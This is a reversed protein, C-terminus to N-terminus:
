FLRYTGVVFYEEPVKWEPKKEVTGVTWSDPKHFHATLVTHFYFMVIGDNLHRDEKTIHKVERDLLYLMNDEILFRYTQRNLAAPALSSAYFAKEWNPDMADEAFDCNQGFVSQSVLEDMAIKPAIHGKIKEMRVDSRSKIDIRNSDKEPNGHGFSICTTVTLPSNINLATKVAKAENITLFCTNLKLETLKLELQAALYGAHIYGEESDEGLLLIYNPAFFANGMYGVIGELRPGAEKGLLLIETKQEPILPSLEKMYQRIQELLKEDVKKDKYSRISSREKILERWKM